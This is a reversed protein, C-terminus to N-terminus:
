LWSGMCAALNDFHFGPSISSQSLRKTRSSESLKGWPTSIFVLLSVPNRGDKVTRFLIQGVGNTSIFVLLSVPNRRYRHVHRDVSQPRQDFHFGPSISSQSWNVMRRKCNRRDRTSIFVLLSVPNRCRNKSTIFRCSCLTSIFVLLSVPNRSKCNSDKRWVYRALDFHFGPSISSQSLIHWRVFFLRTRRRFSFWSLYQIAVKEVKKLAYMASEGHRFSFWSLYQIAVSVLCTPQVKCIARTSIFVLLSVPNRREVVPFAELSVLGLDFHFGPSISSQSM